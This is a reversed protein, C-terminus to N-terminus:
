KTINRDTGRKSTPGVTLNSLAVVSEYILQCKDNPEITFVLKICNKLLTVM